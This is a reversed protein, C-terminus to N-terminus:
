RHTHVLLHTYTHSVFYQKNVESLDTESDIGYKELIDVVQSLGQKEFLTWWGTEKDEVTINM